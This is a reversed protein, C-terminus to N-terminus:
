LSCQGGQGAGLVAGPQDAEDGCGCRDEPLHHGASDLVQTHAFPCVSRVTWYECTCFPESPRPHGLPGSPRPVLDCLHCLVLRDRPYVSWRSLM